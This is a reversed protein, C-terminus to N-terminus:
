SGCAFISWEQWQVVLGMLRLCYLLLITELVPPPQVVSLTDRWSAQSPYLIRHVWSRLGQCSFVPIQHSWIARTIHAISAVTESWITRKPTHMCCPLNWNIQFTALSTRTCFGSLGDPSGEDYRGSHKSLSALLNNSRIIARLISFM